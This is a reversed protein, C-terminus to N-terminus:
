KVNCDGQLYIFSCIFALLKALLPVRVTEDCCINYM